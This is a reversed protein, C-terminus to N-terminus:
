KNKSDRLRKQKANLTKLKNMRRSVNIISVCLRFLILSLIFWIWWKHIFYSKINKLISNQYVIDSYSVVNVSGIIKDNAEFNVKGVVQGKAIPLKLNKNIVLTKKINDNSINGNDNYFDNAYVCTIFKSSGNSIPVNDIFDNKRVFKVPKLNKFAFNFLKHIDVYINTSDSSLIVSIYKHNNKDVSAVLCQQAAITYGTKIGNVGDYKIPVSKNDVTIKNDSFLLKNQSKLVRPESKKNTPDITYSTKGVIKKFVDNTMAYKAIMALDYATTTHNEDPLGNPNLFNSNKAGLDKAKDNMLKSFNEVSGSIHKAIAVAADNASEIMLAHLLDNMSLVEGPELAINNGDIGSPTENDIHVKEDLKSNEIAIIATLIKTTSAPFMKKDPEKSYLVDGTEANILIATKAGLNLPDDAYLISPALIILVSLIVCIKKM